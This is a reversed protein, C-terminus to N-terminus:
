CRCVGRKKPGANGAKRTQGGGAYNVGAEADLEETEWVAGNFIENTEGERYAPPL